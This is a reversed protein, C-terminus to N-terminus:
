SLSGVSLHDIDLHKRLGRVMQKLYALFHSWTQWFLITAYLTENASCTQAKGETSEDVATRNASISLISTYICNKSFHYDSAKLKAVRCTKYIASLRKEDPRHAIHLLRSLNM